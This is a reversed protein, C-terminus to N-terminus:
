VSNKARPVMGVSIHSLCVVIDTQATVPSKGVGYQGVVLRTTITTGSESTSVSSERRVGCLRQLM